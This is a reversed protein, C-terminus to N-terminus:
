FHTTNLDLPQIGNMFLNSKKRLRATSTLSLKFNSLGSHSLKAIEDSKDYGSVSLPLFSYQLIHFHLPKICNDWYNFHCFIFTTSVIYMLLNGIIRYAFFRLHLISLHVLFYLGTFSREMFGSCNM